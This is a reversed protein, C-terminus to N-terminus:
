QVETRDILDPGQVPASHDVADDGNRDHRDHHPQGRRGLDHAVKDDSSPGFSEAPDFGATMAAAIAAM